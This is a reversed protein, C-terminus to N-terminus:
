NGYLHYHLEIDCYVIEGYPNGYHTNTAEPALDRHMSAAKTTRPRHPSTIPIPSKRLRARCRIM